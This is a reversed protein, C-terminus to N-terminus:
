TFIAEYEYGAEVQGVPVIFIQVPEPGIREHLIPYMAQPLLPQGRFFLSFPKRRTSEPANRRKRGTPLEEVDVLEVDIVQSDPLTLQFKQGILPEFMDFTFTDLM